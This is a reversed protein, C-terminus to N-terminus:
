RQLSISSKPEPPNHILLVLVFLFKLDRVFKPLIFTYISANVSPCTFSMHVIVFHIKKMTFLQLGPNGVASSCLHLSKMQITSVVFILFTLLIENAM